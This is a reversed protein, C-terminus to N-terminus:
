TRLNEYYWGKNLQIINFKYLHYNLISQITFNDKHKKELFHIFSPIEAFSVLYNIVFSKKGKFYRVKFIYYYIM